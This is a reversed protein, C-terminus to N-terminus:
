SSVVTARQGSMGDDPAHQVSRGSFHAGAQVALEEHYIDGSVQAGRELRANRCYVTGVVKGYVIITEANIDGMISGNAGVILEKCAVNGLVVGDLRAHGNCSVNGEINFDSSIVSSLYGRSFWRYFAGGWSNHKAVTPVTERESTVINSTRGPVPLHAQPTTM